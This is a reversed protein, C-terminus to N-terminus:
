PLSARPLQDTDIFYKYLVLLGILRERERNRFTAVYNNAQLIIMKAAEPNAEYYAIKDELDSYDDKLQVYHYGPRLQGEM